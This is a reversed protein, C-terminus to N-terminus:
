ALFPKSSVRLAERHRSPGRLAELAKPPTAPGGPAELPKSPGRHAPAALSRSPGRPAELPRPLSRPAGLPESPGRPTELPRPPGRPVGLRESPSRPAEFPRSPGQTGRPTALALLRHHHHRHSRRPGQHNKRKVKQTKSVASFVPLLGPACRSCVPLLMESICLDCSVDVM